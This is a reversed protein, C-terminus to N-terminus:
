TYGYLTLIRQDDRAHYRRAHAINAYGAHRFAGIVLNRIATCANPQNGTRVRQLDEGFTKDRVYHERNEIAWHQRACVALHRPGALDAPLSTIGYAIEKHTWPGRTPGTDRRIRMVQAAHPWGIGAAPATRIGRKERRGHGNGEETWSTGAFDADTGALANTVAELLSPQNAKVM